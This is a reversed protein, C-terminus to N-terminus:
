KLSFSASGYYGTAIDVSGDEKKVLRFGNFAKIYKEPIQGEIDKRHKPYKDHSERYKQIEQMTVDYAELINTGIIMSRQIAYAQEDSRNCSYIDIMKYGQRAQQLKGTEELQKSKTLIERVQNINLCDKDYQFIAIVSGLTLLLLFFALFKYKVRSGEYLLTTNIGRANQAHPIFV